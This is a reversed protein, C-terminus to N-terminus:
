SEGVEREAEEAASCELCVRVYEANLMARLKETTSTAEPSFDDLPFDLKEAAYAGCPEGCNDCIGDHRRSGLRMKPECIAVGIAKGLALRARYFWYSSTM